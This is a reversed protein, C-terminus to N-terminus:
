TSPVRSAYHKDPALAFTVQDFPLLRLEAIQPLSNHPLQNALPATVGLICYVRLSALEVVLSGESAFDVIAFTGGVSYRAWDGVAAKDEDNLDGGKEALFSTVLKPTSWIADRSM